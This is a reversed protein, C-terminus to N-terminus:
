ATISDRPPRSQFRKAPLGGMCYGVWEVLWIRETVPARM